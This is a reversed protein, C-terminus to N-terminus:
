LRTRHQRHPRRQQPRGPLTRSARQPVQHRRSQRQQPGGDHHGCGAKRVHAPHSKSARRRRAGDAHFRRQAPHSQLPAGRYSGARDRDGAQDRHFLRFPGSRWAVNTHKA